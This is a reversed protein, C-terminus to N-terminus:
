ENTLNTSRAIEREEFDVIEDLILQSRIHFLHSVKKDINLQMLYNLAQM